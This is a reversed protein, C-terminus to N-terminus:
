LTGGADRRAHADIVIPASSMLTSGGTRRIKRRLASGGVYVNLLHAPLFNISTAPESRLNDFLSQPWIIFWVTKSFLSKTSSKRGSLLTSFGFVGRASEISWCAKLIACRLAGSRVMYLLRTLMSISMVLPKATIGSLSPRLAACWLMKLCLILPVYGKYFNASSMETQLSVPM